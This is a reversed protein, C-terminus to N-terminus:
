QSLKPPNFRVAAVIGGYKSFEIETVSMVRPRLVRPYAPPPFHIIPASGPWQNPPMLTRFIEAIASLSWDGCAAQKPRSRVGAHGDLGSELPQPRRYSHYSQAMAPQIGSARREVKSKLLKSM